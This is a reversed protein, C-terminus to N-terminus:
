LQAGGTSSIVFRNGRVGARAPCLKIFAFRGVVM